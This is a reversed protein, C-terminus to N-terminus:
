HLVICVFHKSHTPIAIHGTGTPSGRRENGFRSLLHGPSRSIEMLPHHQIACCITIQKKQQHEEDVPIEVVVHADENRGYRLLHLSSPPLYSTTSSLQEDILQFSITLISGNVSEGSPWNAKDPLIAFGCPLIPVSDEDKGDSLYQTAVVDIPAYIVYMAVSDTFSEQLYLKAAKDTAPSEILLRSISNSPDRTSSIKMDELINSGASLLDWKGRNSRNRLFEFLHTQPIPLWVSTSITIAVGQPLRPDDLNTSMKVFIEEAGSIPLPMWSNDSCPSINRAYCKVMRQALKLMNKNGVSLGNSQPSNDEQRGELSTIKDYYRELTAIWRKASFAYDSTLLMKFMHHLSANPVLNHEVWTVMSLGPQLEQILCGSPRRQVCPVAENPFVSELSVDAVLWTNLNIRRCIRAFKVERPTFLPSPLHFNATMVQLAGNHNENEGPYLVGLTTAKSVISFFVSSWQEVNMLVNLISVSSALVVGISKSAENNFAFEGNAANENFNLFHHDDISEGTSVLRIIEDLTEDLSIFRRKYEAENLVESGKNTDFLWLPEQEQAMHWLEESASLALELIKEKYMDASITVSLLLSQFSLNANENSFKTNRSSTGNTFISSESKDQSAM